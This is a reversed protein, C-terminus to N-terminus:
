KLCSFKLVQLIRICWVPVGAEYCYSKALKSRTLKYIFINFMEDMFVYFNTRFILCLPPLFQVIALIVNETALSSVRM